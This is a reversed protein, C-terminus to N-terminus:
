RRNCRCYFRPGDGTGAVCRGGSYIDSTAQCYDSCVAQCYPGNDRCRPNTCGQASVLGIAAALAFIINLKM